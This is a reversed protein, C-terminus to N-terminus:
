PWYREGNNCTRCLFQDDRLKEISKGLWHGGPCYYGNDGYTGSKGPVEIEMGQLKWRHAFEAPDGANETLYDFFARSLGDNRRYARRIIRDVDAPQLDAVSFVALSRKARDLARVVREPGQADCFSTFRMALTRRLLQYESSLLKAVAAPFALPLRLGRESADSGPAYRVYYEGDQVSYWGEADIQGLSSPLWELGAESGKGLLLVALWHEEVQEVERPAVLPDVWDVDRRTHWFRFDECHEASQLSHQDYQHSRVVGEMQGLTFGHRERIILLRFPDDSDTVGRGPNLGNVVRQCVRAVAPTDQQGDGATDLFALATDYPVCGKVGALRESVQAASVGLRPESAQIVTDVDADSAIQAIHMQERLPAFFQRARTECATLMAPPILEIASQTGPKPDFASRGEDRTLEGRLPELAGLVEQLAAREKLTEDWGTIPEEPWRRQSLLNFYDRTVTGAAAPPEAEFYVKGNISPCSQALDKWQRELRTAEQSFAAHIQDLRRLLPATIKRYHEVMERILQRREMHNLTQMNIETALYSSISQTLGEWGHKLKEKKRFDFSKQIREIEEIQRNLIERLSESDQRFRPQEHQAREAWSEMENLYNRLTSALFGPGGDLDLLSRQVLQQVQGEINQLFKAHNREIVQLLTAFAADEGERDLDMATFRGDVERLLQRVQEVKPPVNDNLSRFTEQFVVVSMQEAGEQLRKLLSDFDNGGLLQLATRVADADVRHHLWSAYTTALLRSTAARQIHEGPYDLAAVGMTSFLPRMFGVRAQNDLHSFADVDRAAIAFGASGSAAALYQGIMANLSRVDSEAGGAPAVVRLIDYPRNTKVHPGHSGPLQQRWANEALQYHNLERLAYYANKKFRTSRGGSLVPHPITFIAQRKIGPYWVDLLYGLDAAGGSCTGGCLTGVVYVNVEGQHIQVNLSANGLTDAVTQPTLQDLYSLDAIVRRRLNDYTRPHFLCLRGLMRINGAGDAPDQVDSLTAGDQWDYFGFEAGTTRPSSLYPQYESRKMGGWLVRDGLETNPQATELVLLRVWAAKEFSGYHWTLHEALQRAVELGTSGLGLVLTKRVQLVNSM